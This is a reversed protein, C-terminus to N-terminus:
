ASHNEPQRLMTRLLRLSQFLVEGDLKGEPTIADILAPLLIRLLPLVKDRYLGIQYALQDVKEPGFGQDVRESTLPLNEGEDVWSLLEEGLGNVRLRQLLGAWGGSEPVSYMDMLGVLVAKQPVDLHGVFRALRQKLDEMGIITGHLRQADL